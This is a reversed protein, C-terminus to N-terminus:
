PVPLTGRGSPAQVLKARIKQFAPSDLALERGLPFSELYDTLYTARDPVAPHTALYKFPQKPHEKYLKLFFASLATPNYGANFMLHTAYLDAEKEEARSYARLLLTVGLNMGISVAAKGAVSKPNIANAIANAGNQTVMANIGARAQHHAYNHGLEHALVAALESENEAFSILGSYVVIHGPPTVANVIPSNIVTLKFDFPAGPNKNLLRAVIDDLYSKVEPDELKPANATLATFGQSGLEMEWDRTAQFTVVKAYTQPNITEIRSEPLQYFNAHRNWNGLFQQESAQVLQRVQKESEPDRSPSALYRNFAKLAEAYDAKNYHGSGKFYAMKANAPFRQLGEAAADLCDDYNKSFGFYAQYFYTAVLAEWYKERQPDHKLADKLEHEADELDHKAANKAKGDKTNLYNLGETRAQQLLADVRGSLDQALAPSPVTSRILLWAVAIVVRKM